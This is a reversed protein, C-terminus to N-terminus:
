RYVGEEHKMKKFQKLGYINRQAQLFHNETRLHKPYMQDLILQRIGMGRRHDSMLGARKESLLSHYYKSTQDQEQRGITKNMQKLMFNIFQTEMSRALDIYPKPIYQEPHSIKSNIINM